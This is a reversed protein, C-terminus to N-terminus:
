NTNLKFCPHKIEKTGSSDVARIYGDHVFLKSKRAATIVAAIRNLPHEVKGGFSTYATLCLDPDGAWVTDEGRKLMETKLHEALTM